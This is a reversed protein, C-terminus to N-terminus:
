LSYFINDVQLFSNLIINRAVEWQTAGVGYASEKLLNPVLAFADCWVSTIFPVVMISLVIGATLVGIGLPVGQFFPGIVAIPSLKEILWPQVNNSLLPALIFLGWMGYIISPIGALLEILIRLGQKLNNPCIETQFLSVGLNIPLAIAMAILATIITGLILPLAGFNETVPNWTSNMLFNFGFKQLSPLSGQYLLWIMFLAVRLLSFAFIRAIGAFILDIKRQYNFRNINRM